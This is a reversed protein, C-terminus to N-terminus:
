LLLSGDNAIVAINRPCLCAQKPWYQVNAVGEILSLKMVNTEFEGSWASVTVFKYSLKHM